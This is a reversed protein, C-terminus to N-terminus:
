STKVLLINTGQVGVMKWCQVLLVQRVDVYLLCFQFSKYSLKQIIIKYRNEDQGMIELLCLLVILM